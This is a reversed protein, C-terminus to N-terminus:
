KELIKRITSAMLSSLGGLIIPLLFILLIMIELPFDAISSFIGLLRQNVENFLIPIMLIFWALFSGILGALFSKLRENYLAGGILGAIIVTRWDKLLLMLAYYIIAIVIIVLFFKLRM